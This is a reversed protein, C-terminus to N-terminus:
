GANPTPTGRLIVAHDVREVRPEVYIAVADLFQNSHVSESGRILDSQDSTALKRRPTEAVCSGACSRKVVSMGM